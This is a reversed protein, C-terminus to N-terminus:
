VSFSPTPLLPHENHRRLRRFGFHKGIPHEKLGFGVSACGNLKPAQPSFCVGARAQKQLHQILRDQAQLRGHSGSPLLTNHAKLVYKRGQIRCLLQPLLTSGLVLSSQWTLQPFFSNHCKFFLGSFLTANSSNPNVNADEHQLFM